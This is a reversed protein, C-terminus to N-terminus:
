GALEALVEATHEGLAPVRGLRPPLSALNHPPLLAPIPGHPAEAEGWRGRAQLQPHAVVEAVDRLRGHAIGAAELRQEVEQRSWNRLKTEIVAELKERHAVRAGNGRYDDAGALEPMELVAACFREWERENQVALLVTGDACAYAGYPAVMAHRMGARAPKVGSGQYLYLAPTAWEVLCELMSIDIREGQGSRGRQLLAALISAYAQGGAAIDAVSVGAKAPAEATGTLSILGAEAQVLLDYAKQNRYPGDPGYGSIGCWILGPNTAAAAAHGLGWKEIVGVALNHLFVDARAVLKALVARSDEKGLDLVVSRKGRNLWAFYCSLGGLASDYSRAFDGGDPREIKIVDAGLDALQRSCYPGAVAQEVAIVRIGELPFSAGM